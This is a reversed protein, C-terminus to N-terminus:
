AGRPARNGADAQESKIQTFANFTSETSLPYLGGDVTLVSDQLTASDPMPISMFHEPTLDDSFIIVFSHGRPPPTLARQESYPSSRIFTVRILNKFGRASKTRGLFSADRLYYATEPESFHSNLQPYSKSAQLTTLARLLVSTQNRHPENYSVADARTQQCLSFLCISIAALKM